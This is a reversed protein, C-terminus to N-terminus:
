KTLIKVDKLNKPGLMHDQARQIVLLDGPDLGLHKVCYMDVAVANTGAVVEM